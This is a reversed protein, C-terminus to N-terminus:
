FTKKTLYETLNCGEGNQYETKDIMTTIMMMMTMMMMTMIMM